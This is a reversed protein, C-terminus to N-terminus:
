YDEMGPTEGFSKKALFISFVGGLISTFLVMMSFTTDRLLFYSAGTLVM